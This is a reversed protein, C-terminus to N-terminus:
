LRLSQRSSVKTSSLVKSIEAWEAGEVGKGKGQQGREYIADIIAM